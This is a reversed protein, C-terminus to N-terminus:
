VSKDFAHYEKQGYRPSSVAFRHFSVELDDTAGHRHQDPQAEDARRQRLQPRLARQRHQGGVDHQRLRQARHNLHQRRAGRREVVAQVTWSGEAPFQFWELLDYTRRAEEEDVKSIAMGVHVMVYDGTAAEPVFDLYAQRTVGGFQVRGLRIGDIERTDLIKGPIALCM